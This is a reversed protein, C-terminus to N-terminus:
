ARRPFPSWGLSKGATVTVNLAFGPLVPEARLKPMPFGELPVAKGSPCTNTQRALPDPRRGLPFCAAGM